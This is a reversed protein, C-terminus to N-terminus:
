PRSAREYTFVLTGEALTIDALAALLSERNARAGGLQPTASLAYVTLRYEKIGPGRSCMPDYEARGKGNAGITGVTRADEALQTVTAPIGHVVWYTKVDDPAEHWLILAYSATGPPGAQWAVPPSIGAGDCTFRAPLRGDPGVAPSTVTLAAVSADRSRQPPADAKGRPRSPQERTGDDAAPPRPPGPRPRRPDRGPPRGGGEGGPGRNRPAYDETRTRGSPDTFTFSASGDAAFTYQVTGRRGDIEYTLRRTDPRVATFEVITAGRLQPLAERVGRARPQPDVQGEREVVEGRFGANLYPYAQTAHYHYRGADDEHGGLADLPRVPSGDPETFGYIPYGDLAYAIPRGRGVITELHVPAVHYHYDDARGCHGGYEDLEGIAKADEGRNNLPNFIPVGNVAVAIAGRLFRDRTSAPEAAVRPHLPIQWANGGVYPQPLPVQQQWARIGVMLPHDPMGNSEVYFWRDDHRCSIAQRREFPAFAEAITPDGPKSHATLRFPPSTPTVPRALDSTADAGDDADVGVAAATRVRADDHRHWPHALSTGCALTALVCAIAPAHRRQTM